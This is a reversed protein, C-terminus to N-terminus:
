SGSRWASIETSFRQPFDKHFVETSFREPHVWSDGHIEGCPQDSKQSKLSVMWSRKKQKKQKGQWFRELILLLKIFGANRSSRFLIV